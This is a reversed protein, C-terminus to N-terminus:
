NWKDTYITSQKGVLQRVIPLLEQKSANKIIQTYVRGNRKLVGFVPM